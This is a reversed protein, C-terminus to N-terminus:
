IYFYDTCFCRCVYAPMMNYLLQDIRAKELSLEHTREEIVSELNSTHKEMMELLNDMLDKRRGTECCDCSYNIVLLNYPIILTRKSCRSDFFCSM